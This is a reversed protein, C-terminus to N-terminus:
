LCLCLLAAQQGREGSFDVKASHIQYERLSLNLMQNHPILMRWEVTTFILRKLVAPKMKENM